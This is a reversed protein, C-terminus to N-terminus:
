ADARETLKKGFAFNLLTGLAAAGCSFDTKQEIVNAFRAERLSTVRMTPTADGTFAPVMLSAAQSPACCAFALAASRTTTNM